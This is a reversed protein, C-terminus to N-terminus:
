GDFWGSRKVPPCSRDGLSTTSGVVAAFRGFFAFDDCLLAMPRNRDKAATPVNLMCGRLLSQPQEPLSLDIPLQDRISLCAQGDLGTQGGICNSCVTAAQSGVGWWINHGVQSSVLAVAALFPIALRGMFSTINSTCAPLAPSALRPSGLRPFALDPGVTGSAVARLRLLVVM